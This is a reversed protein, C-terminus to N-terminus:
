KLMIVPVKLQIRKGRQKSPYTWGFPTGFTKKTKSSTIVSIYDEMSYFAVEDNKNLLLYRSIQLEPVTLNLNDSEGTLVWKFFVDRKENLLKTFEQESFDDTLFQNFSKLAPEQQFLNLYNGLRENCNLVRIFDKSSYDHCSVRDKTTSKISITERLTNSQLTDITLIIDTKPNGGNFLLPVTNTSEIKIVDQPLISNDSLIKNIVLKFVPNLDKSNNKLDVLNKYNSFLEVLELEYSNGKKGFFSGKEIPSMQLTIQKLKEDEEEYENEKQLVDYKYEELFSIFESLTLLHTAPSYYDKSKIKERANVFDNNELELDPVLYITAIIEKSFSSHNLIGDFDYFGIKARDHRFSTSRRIVIFKDDITEILFNALFQKKYKFEKHGFNIDIKYDKIVGESKLQELQIEIIKSNKLGANVKNQNDVNKAM